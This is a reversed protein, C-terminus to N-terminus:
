IKQCVDRLGFRVIKLVIFFGLIFLTSVTMMLLWLGNNSFAIVYYFTGLMTGLLVGISGLVLAIYFATLFAEKLYLQNFLMKRSLTFFGLYCMVPFLTMLLASELYYLAYAGTLGLIGLLSYVVMLFAPFLSYFTFIALANAFRWYHIPFDMVVHLDSNESLFNDDGDLVPRYKKVILFALFIYIIPQILIFLGMMLYMNDIAYYEQLSILLYTIAIKLITFFLVLALTFRINKKTFNNINFHYFLITLAGFITLFDMLLNVVVKLTVLISLQYFDSVFLNGGEIVMTQFLIYIGFVVLSGVLPLKYLSFSQQNM